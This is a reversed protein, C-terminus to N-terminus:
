CKGVTSTTGGVGSEGVYLAGDPGFAFGRPSDLGTAFVSVNASMAAPSPAPSSVPTASQASTTALLAPSLGFVLTVFLSAFVARSM